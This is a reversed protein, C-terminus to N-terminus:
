TQRGKMGANFILLFFSGGSFILEISFLVNAYIVDPSIEILTYINQTPLIRNCKYFQLFVANPKMQGCSSVCLLVQIETSNARM